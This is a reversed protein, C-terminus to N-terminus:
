GLRRLFYELQIAKEIRKFTWTACVKNPNSSIVINEQPVQGLKKVLREQLVSIGGMNLISVYNYFITIHCLHEEYFMSFCSVNGDSYTTEYVELKIKDDSLKNIPRAKPHLQKFNKIAMGITLKEFTFDAAAKEHVVSPEDTAALIGCLASFYMIAGMFKFM